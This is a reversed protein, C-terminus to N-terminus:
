KLDGQDETERKLFYLLMDSTWIAISDVCCCYRPLLSSWALCVSVTGLHLTKVCLEIHVLSCFEWGSGCVLFPLCLFSFTRLLACCAVGSFTTDRNGCVSVWLPVPCTTGSSTCNDSFAFRSSLRLFLFMAFIFFEQIGSTWFQASFSM